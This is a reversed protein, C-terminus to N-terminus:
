KWVVEKKEYQIEEKGDKYSLPICYLAGTEFKKDEEDICILEDDTTVTNAFTKVVREEVKESACGILLCLALFLCAMRPVRKKLAHGEASRDEMNLISIIKVKM